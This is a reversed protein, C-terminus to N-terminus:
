LPWVNKANSRPFFDGRFYHSFHRSSFLSGLLCFSTLFPSFLAGIFERGAKGGELTLAFAVSRVLHVLTILPSALTLMAFKKTTTLSSEDNYILNNEKSFTAVQSLVVNREDYRIYIPVTEM